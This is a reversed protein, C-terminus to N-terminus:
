DLFIGKVSLDKRESPDPYTNKYQSISISTGIMLVLIILLYKVKNKM